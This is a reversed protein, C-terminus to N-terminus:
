GIENSKKPCCFIIEKKEVVVEAGGPFQIRMIGSGQGMKRRSIAQNIEFLQPAPTFFPPVNLLESLKQLCLKFIRLRAAEPHLLAVSFPLMLQNDKIVINLQSLYDTWFVQDWQAMNWLNKVHELYGTNEQTLQPILNMRVRNRMFRNDSNSEDVICPIHLKELMEQLLTRPQMLIPRVLSRKSDFGLMGGLEPWGCGRLMRMLQDEALDNLNHALAIFDLNQKKRVAEFFTYRWNRGKEELGTTTCEKKDDNTDYTDCMQKLHCPINMNKCLSKVWSAEQSSSPRFGHDLHAVELSLNLKKQLAKLLILMCMSDVGGSVAVLVGKGKLEICLTKEIFAAVELSLHAWKPPLEQISLPIINPLPPLM